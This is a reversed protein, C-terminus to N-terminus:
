EEFLYKDPICIIKSGSLVYGVTNDEYSSSYFIPKNEVITNMSKRSLFYFRGNCYGCVYLKAYVKEVDDRYFHYNSIPNKNYVIFGGYDYGIINNLVKNLNEIHCGMDDDTKLIYEIEPKSEYVARVMMYTKKCLSMYDDPCGVYLIREIDDFKYGNISPDGIVHYYDIPFGKLWSEKQKERKESYKRCNLILLLYKSYM